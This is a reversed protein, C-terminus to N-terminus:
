SARATKITMLTALARVENIDVREAYRIGGKFPGRWNNHQVRYGEFIQLMGNDLRVPIAARVERMPTNLMDLVEQPTKALAAARALLSKVSEHFNQM